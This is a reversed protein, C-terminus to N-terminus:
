RMCASMKERLLLHFHSRIEIRDTTQQPMLIDPDRLSVQVAQAVLFHNLNGLLFAHQHIHSLCRRRRKQLSPAATNYKNCSATIVNAIEIRVIRKPRPKPIDDAIQLEAPHLHHIPFLKTCGSM